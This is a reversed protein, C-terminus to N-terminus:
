PEAVATVEDTAFATLFRANVTVPLTVRRPVFVTSAPMGTVSCRRTTPVETHRPTLLPVM